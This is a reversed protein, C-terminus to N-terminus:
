LEKKIQNIKLALFIFVIIETVGTIIASAIYGFSPIFIVNLFINIIAVILYVAMLYKQQKKAILSWQLISTMFFIPLSLLLIRFPAVSELFDNRVLGIFPSIYWFILVIIFSVLLSFILYFNITRYFNQNNKEKLLAPYIANSLFLPVAILFDFFKYSFGYVGVESTTRLFSLLLIDIRFYILNFILMLGIPLSELFLEKAFLKNFSVPFIKEAKFIATIGTIFGGIVFCLYIYNLPLLKSTALFILILTVLSGVGSAILLFEYKLRKQFIASSSYLISQNIISLSFILIGMKVSESFGLDLEKNFPLILAISNAIFILLFSIGLRLYFLDKFNTKEKQLFVANFGFDAILYFLGVYATVKTFEGFGLAGFSSAIIITILFGIGSTVLRTLTQYTTNKFILSHM